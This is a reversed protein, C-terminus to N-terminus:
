NMAEVHTEQLTLRARVLLIRARTREWSLDTISYARISLDYGFVASFKRSETRLPTNIYARKRIKEIRHGTSPITGSINRICRLERDNRVVHQYYNRQWLTRGRTDRLENILRTTSAKFGRVIAGLTQAPSHFKDSPTHSVSRRFGEIIVLGHLHNPM